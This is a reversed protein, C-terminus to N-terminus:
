FPVEDDMPENRWDSYAYEGDDGPEREAESPGFPVDEILEVVDPKEVSFEYKIVKDFREGSIHRVTIRAPRRIGGADAIDCAERASAPFPNNSRERWWTRAKAQIHGTHEVCIWEPIFTGLGVQYDVRLTKPASADAGKKTHPKYIVDMVDYETDTVQGSVVGDKGAKTEHPDKEERPFVYGCACWRASIPSEKDCDLCVKTPVEGGTGPKKPNIADIPGHKKVNGGFDLVLCDEKGPHIRLGRGVMQYYLGGSLTSRLLAVCDVNTADFGTTLVNVNVLYQLSGRRFEDILKDRDAASTEGTLYEADCGLTKLTKTVNQCHSIGCTFILISKRNTAQVAAVIEKCAHYVVSTKNFALELEGPIYEGARVHVKSVDVETGYQSTLKSLYGQQILTKVSIEYCIESFIRDEGCILGCDLRYPTATLGVVRMRPNIQLLGHILTRYMGDGDATVLHAEDVILIDIHGVEKAKSYISQIGAVVVPTNLTRQGLGASYLGVDIGECTVRLKNYAQVLLEKVHAVVMARGQWGVVDQCLVALLPGKGAGTPLCAVPNGDSRYVYDWIADRAEQQYDRLQIM